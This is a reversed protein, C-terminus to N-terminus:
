RERQTRLRRVHDFLTTGNEPWTGGAAEFQDRAQKAMRGYASAKQMAYARHGGTDGNEGMETWVESMRAFGRVTRRFEEELIEVDEDWREAQARARHWQVGNGLSTMTLM